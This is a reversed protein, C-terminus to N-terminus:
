RRGIVEFAVRNRGSASRGATNGAQDFAKAELVYGGRPLPRPLLYSWRPGDGAEFDRAKGCAGAVFRESRGSWWSCRGHVRRRLSLKVVRVGSADDSATGRLLRPGRRYRAGNRPGSIRASAARTDDAARNSGASGLQSAPVGCDGGDAPAVCILLANSRISDGREAKLVQLGPAGFSVRAEGNSKTVQGGVSAGSLPSGTQGDTVQVTAFQGAVTRAPGTLKLIHSKSFFDYGFLVEDGAQVQQQCGGVMTPVFNLAYGWYRNSAFDNTDPGVRDIGFDDFGNFWTGDWSFSGGLSADDLASTM